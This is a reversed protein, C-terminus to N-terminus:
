IIKNIVPIKVLISALGFSFCVALPAVILLKLAPAINLSIFILSLSILVVPHFIYTAYASRSMNKLLLGQRNWKERAFGLLVVM